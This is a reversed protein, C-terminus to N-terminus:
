YKELYQDLTLKADFSFSSCEQMRKKIRQKHRYISEPKANVCVAIQASSFGIKILCCYYKDLSTLNPFDKGLRTYFNCYHLDTWEALIQLDDEKLYRVPDLMTKLKDFYSVQVELKDHNNNLMDCYKDVLEQLNDIQDQLKKNTCITEDIDLQKDKLSAILSKNQKIKERNSLIVSTYINIKERANRLLRGEKDLHYQYSIILVLLLVVLVMVILQINKKEIELYNNQNKLRENDYRAQIEALESTRTISQLSDMYHIYKNCYDMSQEYQKDELCLRYLCNYSGVITYLNDTDLAKEFYIRASDLEGIQWFIGGLGYYSQPLRKIDSRQMLLEVGERAYRLAILNKDLAMYFASLDNSALAQLKKDELKLAYEYSLYFYHAASDMQASEVFTRGLETFTYFIRERNKSRLAYKNAQRLQELSNDYLKQYRYLSGLNQCILYSFLPEDLSTIFEKAKLIYPLAQTYKHEDELLQGKYYYAEALRKPNENKEFYSIANQVLVRSDPSSISDPLNKGYTKDRAQVLLLGWIAKAEETSLLSQSIKSLQFLASDPYEWMFSEIEALESFLMKEQRNCSFSLCVLLLLLCKAKIM